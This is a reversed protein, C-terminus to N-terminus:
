QKISINPLKANNRNMAEFHLARFWSPASAEFRISEYSPMASLAGRFDGSFSRPIVPCSV